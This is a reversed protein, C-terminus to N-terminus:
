IVKKTKSRKTKAFERTNIFEDRLLMFKEGLLLECKNPVLNIYDQQTRAYTQDLLIDCNHTRKLDDIVMLTKCSQKVINHWRHDLSYHDVILLDVNAHELLSDMCEQADEKIECGLWLKDNLQQDINTMPASLSILEFGQKKIVHNLHGNHQKCLFIIKCDLNKLKKALTLCRM